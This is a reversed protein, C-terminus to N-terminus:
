RRDAGAPRARWAAVVSKRALGHDDGAATFLAVDTEIAHRRLDSPDLVGSVTLSTLGHGVAWYRVAVDRTDLRADFRGAQQAGAVGRVLADFLGDAAEPEPLDFMSEFMIRYLHPNALGNDVYAAGLAALHRVPDSTSRVTALREGLRVFGEQRVASWLGPMGDFYTYVAM